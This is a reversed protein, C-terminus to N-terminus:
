YSLGKSTSDLAPFASMNLRRVASAKKGDTVRTSFSNGRSWALGDRWFARDVSISLSFLLKWFLHSGFPLLM